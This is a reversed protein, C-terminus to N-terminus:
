RKHVQFFIFECIDQMTRNSSKFDNEANNLISLADLINEKQINKLAAKFSELYKFFIPPKIKSVADDIFMGHQMFNNAIYLNTYYRILARIIWVASINESLLKHLEHLYKEYQKSVFAICLHDSSPAIVNSVVEQVDSLTIYSKDKNYLLVKDIESLILGRDGSVNQVIYQVADSAIKKGDSTIKQQVLRGVVAPEDPYCGISALKEESEFFKRISSSTSLEDCIFIPIHHMPSLLLQKLSNDITSSMDKIQIVENGGFLTRNNLVVDLGKDQAEKYFMSSNSLKLTNVVSNIIHETVGKDPGYLLLASISRSKMQSVLFDLKNITLKM